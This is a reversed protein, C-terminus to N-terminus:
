ASVTFEVLEAPFKIQTGMKYRATYDVEFNKEDYYVVLDQDEFEVDVGVVFNGEEGVRGAFMRNTGSLGEVAEFYLGITPIFLRNMDGEPSFHYLNQEVLASKLLKFTDGGGLIAVDGNALVATPIMSYMGKVIALINAETIDTASTTNGDIVDVEADIIKILGDFKNM